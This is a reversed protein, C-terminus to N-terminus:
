VTYGFKCRSCHKLAGNMSGGMYFEHEKKCALIKNVEEQTYEGKDPKGICPYFIEEPVNKKKAM